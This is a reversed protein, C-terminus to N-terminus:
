IVSRVLPKGSVQPNITYRTTNRGVKGARDEVKLWGKSVLYECAGEIERSESLGSWCNRTIDRVTFGDKLNGKIIKEALLVESSTANKFALNWFKDAHSFFFDATQIAQTVSEAGIEPYSGKSFEGAAAISLVHNILALTPVFSLSKVLFEAFMGNGDDSAQKEKAKIGRRWEEALELADADFTFAPVPCGEVECAGEQSYNLQDIRSLIDAVNTRASLDPPRDTDDVSASDPFTILRFRQLLGDNSGKAANRIFPIIRDPQTGGSAILNYRAAEVSGRGLTDSTRTANGNAGELWFTRLEANAPDSLTQLWSSLEDKLLHMARPNDVCLAQLKQYTADDFFYRIEPPAKPPKLDLEKKRLTEIDPLKKGGAEDQGLLAANNVAERAKAIARKTSEYEARAVEFDPMLSARKMDARQKLPALLERIASVAASKNAAPPGIIVSWSLPYACWTSHKRVKVACDGGILSEIAALLLAFIYEPRTCRQQAESFVYERLYVPVMEPTLAMATKSQVEIPEPEPWGTSISYEPANECAERSIVEIGNLM